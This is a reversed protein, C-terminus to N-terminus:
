TLLCKVMPVLARADQKGVITFGFKAYLCQAKRNDAHVLLCLRKYAPETKAREQAVKILHELILDSYHKDGAGVGKGQFLKNVALQPIFGVQKRSRQTLGLSSFGVLERYFGLDIFHLWVTTGHKEMSKLASEFPPSSKIWNAAARAWPEEGCDFDKIDPLSLNERSFDVTALEM